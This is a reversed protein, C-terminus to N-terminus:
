CCPLPPWFINRLRLFHHQFSDARITKRLEPFVGAVLFFRRLRNKKNRRKISPTSKLSLISNKLNLSKTLMSVSTKEPTTSMGRESAKKTALRCWEFSNIRHCLALIIGSSSRSTLARRELICFKHVSYANSYANKVRPLAVILSYSCVIKM